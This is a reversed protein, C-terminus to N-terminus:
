AGGADAPDSADVDVEDAPDIDPEDKQSPRGRGPAGPSRRGSPGSMLADARHTKLEYTVGAPRDAELEALRATAAAHQAHEFILRRIPVKLKPDVSIAFIRYSETAAEEPRNM